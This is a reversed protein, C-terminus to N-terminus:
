TSELIRKAYTHAMLQNALATPHCIDFFYDQPDDNIQSFHNDFDILGGFKNRAKTESYLKRMNKNQQTRYLKSRMYETERPGLQGQRSDLYPQLGCIHTCGYAETIKIFQELRYLYADVIQTPGPNRSNNTNDSSQGHLAASWIELMPQYTYRAKTVLKRDNAQGYFLDNFGDHSIVIHPQANIGYILFAIIEAMVTAAPQAYNFVAYRRRDSPCNADLAAQLCGALTEEDPLGQGWAASGGFIYVNILSSLSSPASIGRFGFDDSTGFSEDRTLQIHPAFALFSQNDQTTNQFFVHKNL